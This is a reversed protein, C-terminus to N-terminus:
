PMLRINKKYVSVDSINSRRSCERCHLPEHHRIDSAFPDKENALEYSAFQQLRTVRCHLSLTM